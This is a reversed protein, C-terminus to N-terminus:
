TLVASACSISCEWKGLNGKSKARNVSESEASFKKAELGINVYVEMLKQLFDM